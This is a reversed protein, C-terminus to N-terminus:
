HRVGRAPMPDYCDGWSGWAFAQEFFVRWNLVYRMPDRDFDSLPVPFGCDILLPTISVLADRVKRLEDTPLGHQEVSSLCLAILEATERTMLELPHALIQVATATVWDALEATPRETVASAPFGDLMAQRTAQDQNLHPRVGALFKWWEMAWGLPDADHDVTPVVFGGAELEPALREVLLPALPLQEIAMRSLQGRGQTANVVSALWGIMADTVLLMDFDPATQVALLTEALDIPRPETM